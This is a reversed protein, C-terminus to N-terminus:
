GEFVTRTLALKSYEDVLIESFAYPVLAKVGEFVTERLPYLNRTPYQHMNKCMWVGPKTAPMIESLGTIDIFLGSQMDIWRADIVNMGDGRVRAASHPNVDLLYQRQEEKGQDDLFTYNHTTMNLNQGLWELTSGSVQVDLDSDWPMIKGNWWWGLLTGHAIWTEINRERFTTLYARVMHKLTDGKEEYNLMRGSYYRGDYHGLIYSSGAEHFYKSQEGRSSPITSTKESTTDSQQFGSTKKVEPSRPSVEIPSGVAVSSQLLLTASILLSQLKM